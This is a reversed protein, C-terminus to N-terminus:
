VFVFDDAAFQALTVGRIEIANDADLTIVVSTGVQAMHARVAAFDSFAARDFQIVDETGGGDHFQGIMDKGFTAGFVYTDNGAGGHLYDNGVDGFLTDAGNLGFLYDNGVGGRLVDNGDDGYLKDADAGGELRDHGSGGYMLDKGAAGWLYDDGSGGYMADAAQGGYLRDQGAGGELTDGFDGGGGILTDDGDDGYLLDGGPSALRGDLLDNGAGGHLVDRGAGGLIVDNGAGGDLRDNDTASGFFLQQRGSVDYHIATDHYLNWTGPSSPNTADGPTLHVGNVTIDKIYLNRDGGANRVDNLFFFDLTTVATPNAFTFSYSQYEAPQTATRFEVVGGVPEGNVLLQMKAGVGDVMSGSGTVTITTAALPSVTDPGGTMTDDGPGGRIVDDGTGGSLTDNGSGVDILDPGASGTRTVDLAHRVGGFWDTILGEAPKGMPSYGKPSYVNTPDWGWLYAGKFWSGGESGWVQFFANYADYQEQLDQPASADVWGGPRINTGDISRYGAETFVLPKDYRLSLSHFFEIPAKYEMVKAWYDNGSLNHWAAVMEAVTPDTKSTLPPYANVGIEDLQDWFSVQYAEDTSAAYTVTGHYVARVAEIIDVWYSRYAAGSLSSLENGISLAEAGRQEAFEAYELIKAKYSAFFAAVNTPALSMQGAGDLPSLVPRVMASLGLAHADAVAQALNANSETKGPHSVVDNSTKTEVFIRPVLSIANANTAALGAMADHAAGTAFEGNWDSKFGFGQVQFIGAV